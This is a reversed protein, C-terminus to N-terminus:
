FYIASNTKITPPTGRIIKQLIERLADSIRIPTEVGTFVSSQGALKILLWPMLEMLFSGEMTYRSWFWRRNACSVCRDVLGYRSRGERCLFLLYCLDLAPQYIFLTILMETVLLSPM